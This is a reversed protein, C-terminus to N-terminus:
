RCRRRRRLPAERSALTRLVRGDKSCSSTAASRSTTRARSRARRRRLRVTYGGIEVTDGLAMRVDKEVEYGKVLTVGVVFVAIGLHALQM